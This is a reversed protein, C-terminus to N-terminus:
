TTTCYRVHSGNAASGRPEFEGDGVERQGAHSEEAAELMRNGNRGDPRVNVGALHLDAKELPALLGEPDPAARMVHAAVILEERQRVLDVVGAVQGLLAADEIPEDEQHFGRTLEEAQRAVGARSSWRWNSRM